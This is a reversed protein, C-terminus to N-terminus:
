SQWELNVCKTFAIPMGLFYCFWWEFASFNWFTKVTWKFHQVVKKVQLFKYKTFSSTLTPHGFNPSVVRYKIISPHKGINAGCLFTYDRPKTGNPNASLSSMDIDLICVPNTDTWFNYSFINKHFFIGYQGSFGLWRYCFTLSKFHIFKTYIDGARILLHKNKM